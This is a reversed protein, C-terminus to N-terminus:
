FEGAWIRDLLKQAAVAIRPSGATAPLIVAILNALEDVCSKVSLEFTSHAEGLFYLGITVLCM